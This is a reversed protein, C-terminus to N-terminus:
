IEWHPKDSFKWDGGWKIDSDIVHYAKMVDAMGKVYNGFDRLANNDYGEPYPIVDVAMGEQHKSRHDIGDKYTVIQGGAWRGKGYLEQQEEQTRLGSVVSCDRHKVVEMFLSILDPHVTLLKARSHESFSPMLM